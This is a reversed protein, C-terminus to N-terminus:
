AAEQFLHVDRQPFPITVDEADFRQKVIKHLDWNVSWYDETKVWPRCILNVSSDGHAVVRINPAPEELVLPHQKCVDLLIAMVKDLDDGYGVGFTLDVRRTPLATLNTITEGWINNNPVVIRRNDFTLITTSVLTMADVKGGVGGAVDVSDGVDFPRYLLILIGSAFNSLTGQLALGVVLGAAGIAAVLPGINVGLFSLAVVFGVILVIKRVLNSLFNVLLKSAGRMHELAKRTLRGLIRALIFSLVLILLFYVIALGVAIGGEADLLWTKFTPWLAEIDSADLDATTVSGAYTRMAEADGGKADLANLVVEVRDAIRDLDISRRAAFDLLDRRETGTASRAELRGAAVDAVVHRLRQMWREAVPEIEEATLPRLMLKLADIEVEDPAEAPDSGYDPSPEAEEIVEDVAVVPPAPVVAAHSTPVHAVCLLAVLAWPLSWRSM